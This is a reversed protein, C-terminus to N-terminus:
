NSIQRRWKDIGGKKNKREKRERKMRAKVGDDIGRGSELPAFASGSTPPAPPATKIQYRHMINASLWETFHPFLHHSYWAGKAKWGVPLEQRPRLSARIVANVVKSPPDMAAM